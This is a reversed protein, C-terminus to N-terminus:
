RPADAAGTKRPASSRSRGCPGAATCRRCRRRRCPARSRQRQHRRLTSAHFWQHTPFLHLRPSSTAPCPSPRPVDGLAPNRSSTRTSHQSLTASIQGFNTLPCPQRTNFFLHRTNYHTPILPIKIFFPLNKSPVIKFAHKFSWCSNCHM